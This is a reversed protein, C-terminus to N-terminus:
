LMLFTKLAAQSESSILNDGGDRSTAKAQTKVQQAELERQQVREAM